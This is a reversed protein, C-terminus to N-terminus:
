FPGKEKYFCIITYNDKLFFVVFVFFGIWDCPEFIFCPLLSCDGQLCDEEGMLGTGRGGAAVAWGYACGKESFM